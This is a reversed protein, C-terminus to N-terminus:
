QDPYVRFVLDGVAAVTLTVEAVHVLYPNTSTGTVTFSYRGIPTSGTTSVELMVSAYGGPPPTVVPPRFSRVLSLLMGSVELSVPSSFDGMSRIKIVFNATQGQGIMLSTPNSSIYFDNESGGQYPLGTGSLTGTSVAILLLILAGYLLRIHM